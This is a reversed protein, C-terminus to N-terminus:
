SLCPKCSCAPLCAPKAARTLRADPSQVLLQQGALSSSHLTTLLASSSHLYPLAASGVKADYPDIGAQVRAYKRAFKIAGENAETGSNCFFAKDAFSNHVLRKALEV